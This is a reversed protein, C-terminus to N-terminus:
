TSGEGVGRFGFGQTPPLYRRYPDRVLYSTKRTVAGARFALASLENDELDGTIRDNLALAPSAESFIANRPVDQSWPQSWLTGRLTASKPLLDELFMHRFGIGGVLTLDSPLPSEVGPISIEFNEIHTPRILHEIARRFKKGQTPGYYRFGQGRHHHAVEDLPSGSENSLEPHTSENESELRIWHLVAHEPLNEMALLTADQAWRKRLKGDGFAYVRVPSTEERLLNAALALGRDMHSGNGRVLRSRLRHTQTGFQKAPIWKGFLKEARRRVLVVEVEAQPLGRLIAAALSRQRKLQPDKISLSADFVFIVKAGVPATSLQMPTEFELRGIERGHVALTSWRAPLVVEGAIKKEEPKEAPWSVVQGEQNFHCAIQLFGHKDEPVLRERRSGPAHVTPKRFSADENSATTPYALYNRGNEYCTPAKVQYEVKLRLKHHLQPFSLRLGGFNNTVLIPPFDTLEGEKFSPPVSDEEADEEFDDVPVMAEDFESDATDSALLQGPFWSDGTGAHLSVLTGHPPVDIDIEGSSEKGITFERTVVLSAVSGDLTM